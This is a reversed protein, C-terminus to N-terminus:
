VGGEVRGEGEHASRVLEDRPGDRALEWPKSKSKTFVGGSCSNLGPCRQVNPSLDTFCELTDALPFLVLVRTDQPAHTSPVQHIECHTHHSEIMKGLKGSAGALRQSCEQAKRPDSPRIEM